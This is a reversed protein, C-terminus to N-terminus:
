VACTVTLRGGPAPAVAAPAPLRAGLASHPRVTDCARRRQEVVTTAEVATHLIERDLLEDRLAGTFSDM